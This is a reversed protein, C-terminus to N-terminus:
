FHILLPFAGTTKLLPKIKFNFVLKILYNQRMKMDNEVQKELQMLPIEM